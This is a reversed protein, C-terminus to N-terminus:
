PHYPHPHVLCCPAPPGPIKRALGPQSSQVPTGSVHQACFKATAHGKSIGAVCWLGPFPSETNMRVDCYACAGPSLVPPYHLIDVRFGLCNWFFIACLHEISVVLYCRQPDVPQLAHASSGTWCWFLHQLDPVQVKFWEEQGQVDWHPQLASLRAHAARVAVEGLGPPPRFERPPQPFADSEITIDASVDAAGLAM